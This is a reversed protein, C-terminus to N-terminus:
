TVACFLSKLTSITVRAHWLVTVHFCLFPLSLFPFSLFPSFPPTNLNTPSGVLGVLLSYM